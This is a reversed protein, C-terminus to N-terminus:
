LVSGVYLPGDPRALHPWQTLWLDSYLRAKQGSLSLAQANAISDVWITRAGLVKGFFVGFFGPAAGTSIVVDPRYRLVVLAMRIALLLLSAKSWRSADNVIFFREFKVHDRYSEECTAFAIRHGQLAPLLRQLQIWHGGGSSVALIKKSQASVKPQEAM